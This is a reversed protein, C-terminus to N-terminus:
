GPAPKDDSGDEGDFIRDLMARVEAPAASTDQSATMMADPVGGLSGLIHDSFDSAIVGPRLAADDGEDSDVMTEVVEDVLCVDVDEDGLTDLLDELLLSRALPAGRGNAGKAELALGCRSAADEDKFCVVSSTGNLTMSFYQADGTGEDHVLVWVPDESPDLFDASTKDEFLGDPVMTISLGLPTTPLVSTILASLEDKAANASLGGRFVMGVRFDADRSTVVLAEVDLAQVSPISDYAEDQLSLAYREAEDHDEFALVVHAEDAGVEMSYVAEDDTDEDFVLVWAQELAELRVRVSDTERVVSIREALKSLDWDHDNLAAEEVGEDDDPRDAPSAAAMRVGPTVRARRTAVSAHLPLRMPQTRPCAPISCLTLGAVLQLLLSFQLVRM